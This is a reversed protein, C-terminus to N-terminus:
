LDITPMPYQERKIAKNAQRMDVCLRFKGVGKPVVLLPSVWPFPGTVTEIIDLRLLKNLEKLVGEMLPAAIRYYTTQKPTVEPDIELRVQVGPFSPFPAQNEALGQVDLGVKLLKLKESTQRSLLARRAGKIVFFEAEATPKKDNM